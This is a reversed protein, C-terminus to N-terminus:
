QRIIGKEARVVWRGGSYSISTIRGLGSLMDGVVIPQISSQGKKSVWAKDPQAARLEWVVSSKPKSKKVVRKTKAKPATTSSNSTVTRTVTAKPKANMDKKLTQLSESIDQIQANGGDRVQALQGEIDDLRDSLASIANQVDPSDQVTTDESQPMVDNIVATKEEVKTEKKTTFEELVIAEAEEKGESPKMIPEEVPMDDEVFSLIDLDNNNKEPKELTVEAKPATRSVTVSSGGGSVDPSRPVKTEETSEPLPTLTTQKIQEQNQPGVEEIELANSEMGDLSDANFLFANEKSSDTKEEQAEVVEEEEKDGFIPGDSAGNMNLSSIFREAVQPPKKTMVQFGLVFVGVIVAAGIVITNFSLNLNSLPSKKQEGLAAGSSAGEDDEDDWGLDDEIDDEFDDNGFALEDDSDDVIEDSSDFDDDGIDDLFEDELELDLDFDDDKDQIM